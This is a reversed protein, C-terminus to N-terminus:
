LFSTKVGFGHDTKSVPRFFNNTDNSFGTRIHQHDPRMAVAADFIKNITFRDVAYPM